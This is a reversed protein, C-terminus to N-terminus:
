QIILEKEFIKTYEKGNYGEYFQLTYTGSNLNHIEGKVDYYQTRVKCNDQIFFLKVTNDRKEMEMKNQDCLGYGVLDKIDIVIKNDQVEVVIKEERKEKPSGESITYNFEPESLSKVGFEECTKKSQECYVTKPFNMDFYERICVNTEVSLVPSDKSGDPWELFQCNNCWSVFKERCEKVTENESPINMSSNNKPLYNSWICWGILLIVIILVGILVKTKSNM